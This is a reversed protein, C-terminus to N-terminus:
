SIELVSGTLMLDGTASAKTKVIDGAELVFKGSIMGLASGAPLPIVKAIFTEKNSASADTWSVTADAEAIGNVNAVQLMLVIAVTSAPCTYATEGTTTMDTNFNKFIGAM